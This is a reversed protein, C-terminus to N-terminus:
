NGNQIPTIFKM